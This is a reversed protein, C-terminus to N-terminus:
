RIKVSFCEDENGKDQDLFATHVHITCTVCVEQRFALSFDMKIVRQQRKAATYGLLTLQYALRTANKPRVCALTGVLYRTNKPRINALTGVL